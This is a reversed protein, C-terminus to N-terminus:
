SRLGSSRTWACPSDSAFDESVIAATGNGDPSRRARPRTERRSSFFVEVLKITLPKKNGEPNLV